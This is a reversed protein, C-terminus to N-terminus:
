CQVSLTFQCTLSELISCIGVSALNHRLGGTEGHVKVHFYTDGIVALVGYGPDCLLYLEVQHFTSTEIWRWHETQPMKPGDGSTYAEITVKM